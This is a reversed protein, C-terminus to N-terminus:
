KNYVIKRNYIQDNITIRLYYIGTSVPQGGENRGTWILNQTGQKFKHREVLRKICQGTQNMVLVEVMADTALHIDVTIEQNFPNPYCDVANTNFVDNLGTFSVTKFNLIVSEHKVFVHDGKVVEPIIELEAQQASQWLRFSYTNGELFGSMGKNDAASAPISVVNTKIHGPLLTLVGVCNDGDFVALEDGVRVIGSQLNVFNFNMHDVGNGEFVPKFHVPATTGPLLVASKSYTESVWLTDYTSVKVKYGKGPYFNGIYNQWGGFIGLNEISRGQEDQVKLLTGNEILSAVVEMGDASQLAPYGVINWGTNLHIAYPYGVKRGCIQISDNSNLKIKYGEDPLIDGIDNQWGGFIGRDELSAGTEDQIKVLINNNILEQFNFQMDASDSLVPSAFINWGTQFDIGWCVETSVGLQVYSSAGSQFALCNVGNLQNDFCNIEDVKYELEKSCSWVRYSVEHGPTFGNGTGDDTSVVISLINQHNITNLIKGYGVCLDGDFVGLEDGEELDIGDVKAEIIFINMADNPNGGEWVPHFHQPCVYDPEIFLTDTVFCSHADEVYVTHWGTPVTYYTDYTELGDFVLRYPATGGSIEIQIDASLENVNLTNVDVALPEAPSSFVMTKSESYCGWDNMVKFEYYRDAQTEGDFSLDTIYIQQDFYASTADSVWNGDEYLSYIVQYLQGPMGSEISIRATAMSDGYCSVDQVEFSISDPTELIISDSDVCGNADQVYFTYSGSPVVHNNIESSNFYLEGNRYASFTYPEIGGIGDLVIGWVSDESCTPESFITVDMLLADPESVILLTQVENEAADEVLLTYAGPLLDVDLGNEADPLVYIQTQEGSYPEIIVTYSNGDSLAEESSGGYTWEGGLGGSIELTLLGNDGNCPADNVTASIELPLLTDQDIVASYALAFDTIIDHENYINGLDDQYNVFGENAHEPLTISGLYNNYSFANSNINIIESQEQFYISTLSNSNFAFAYEEINSIGVPIIVQVLGNSQFARVGINTVTEPIFSIVDAVGGYSVITSVDESGDNNRAYVIGNSAAGNQIQIANGNFAAQGIFTVSEPITIDELLNDRFAMDGISEMGDPLNLLELSNDFFASFQIQRLSQAFDVSTLGCGSFSSSNIVEIWSYIYISDSVGGYSVVISNDILGDDLHRYFFGDFQDGNLTSLRNNTFCANGLYSISDPLWLSQINNDQFAGQDINTLGSAVALDLHEIQNGYFALAEIHTLGSPMVVSTIGKTHFAFDGIGTVLQDCLTDPIIIDTNSFDYTCATIVGNEITVDNCSLIYYEIGESDLVVSIVQNDESITVSTNVAIYGDATVAYEYTKEPVGFVEVIGYSDAVYVSDNFVIQAGQIPEIGDSIVFQIDHETIDPELGVLVGTNYSYLAFEDVDYYGDYQFNGFGVVVHFQGEENYGDCHYWHGAICNNEHWNGCGDVNELRMGQVLLSRGNDLENMLLKTWEARTYDNRQAVNSQKYNFYQHMANSMNQLDTGSGGVDHMSVAAHYCLEAVESYKEEEDNSSLMETMNDYEYTADGFNASWYTGGNDTFSLEGNGHTPYGWSYIIRALSSPGCANGIRGNIGNEAEPYYANYPWKYNEWKATVLPSVPSLAEHVTFVENSEDSLGPNTIAVVKIKYNESAPLNWNCGVSSQAAPVIGFLVQWTDGGDTSYEINIDDIGNSVWKIESAQGTICFEGGNPEILSLYNQSYSVPNDSLEVTGWGATSSYYNNNGQWILQAPTNYPNAEDDDDNIVVNIGLSMGISPSIQILDWPVAFEMSYGDNTEHYEHIIGDSNVNREQVWFSRIPKIFLVDHVDLETGKNNDGDIGIEIGDDYWGQRHHKSLTQDVVNVGIYLYDDDWLLGFNATNDSGGSNIEVLNSLNWFSEDLEGDLSLQAQLKNVPLGQQIDFQATYSTTLDSVTTGGAHENSNGDLWKNFEYGFKQPTPLVFSSFNNSTFADAGINELGKCASLDISNLGSFLFGCSYITHLSVCSSLDMSPIQNNFFTRFGVYNLKSCQSFDVSTLGSTNFAHDGLVEVSAPIVVNTTQKAYSILTTEDFSGDPNLAYLFGDFLQGNLQTINNGNFVGGGLYTLNEPLNISTLNNAMFALPGIYTLNTCRSFDVSSLNNHEFVSEAITQLTAPLQVSTMVNKFRFLRYGLGIVPQDCLTDPIIIDTNSFDYSCSTIVGDVITVDNCTLTYGSEPSGVKFEISDGVFGIDYISLSTNSGDSLLAVPDSDANILIRGQDASFAADTWSGNPSEDTVGPRLVYLEDPPGNRNGSTVSTNVRYVLLGEDYSASLHTDYGVKKRYEVMFFETTSEQVPIKYCAFSSNGVAPLKYTGGETIEPIENFWNGYQYKMWTLMHQAYDWAMLDWGAVPYLNSSEDSYHYLDPAGLTHFMEHCLVSVDTVASLQFNYEWVRAGSITVTKSYLAWKHPWLLESWGETTGQVIFCINDVYGDADSDFNIGSTELDPKVSNIASELLTHERETREADDVYGIPNTVYDYPVYYNRPQADQYSVISSSESIPYFTSYVDLQSGSVESFYGRLSYNQGNFQEEYVSLEETFEAQDAFRIFLVINNYDGTKPAYSVDDIMGSKLSFRDPIIKLGPDIGVSEPNVSGVLHESAILQGDKIIAYAYYGTTKDKIITFNNADHLWNFYEDGSAFCHIIEGSPQKVSVPVNNLYAAFANFFLSFIFVVILPIVKKM